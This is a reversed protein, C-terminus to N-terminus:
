LNSLPFRDKVRIGKETQEISCCENVPDHEFFLIANNQIANKSFNIKEELSIKKLISDAWVTAEDSCFPPLKVQAFLAPALLM